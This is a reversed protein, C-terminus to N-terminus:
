SGEKKPIMPIDIPLWRVFIPRGNDSPTSRVCLRPRIAGGDYRCIWVAGEASLGYFIAGEGWKNEPDIRIWVAPPPAPQWPILCAACVAGHEIHLEVRNSGCICNM